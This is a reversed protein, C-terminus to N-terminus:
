QPQERQVSGDPFIIYVPRRAKRAYRVTAWTGSRLEEHLLRPTAVLAVTEDVIDHDRDLYNGPERLEDCEKFARLHEKIPPHGVVYWGMSKAIDHAQADSGVCDGHHLVPNEGGLELLLEGFLKQQLLNMGHQTGTSGVATM